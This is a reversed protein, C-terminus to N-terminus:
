FGRREAVKKRPREKLISSRTHPTRGWKLPRADKLVHAALPKM